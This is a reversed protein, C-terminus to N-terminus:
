AGPFVLILKRSTSFFLHLFTLVTLMTLSLRMMNCAVDSMNMIPRVCTNKKNTAVQNYRAASVMEIPGM